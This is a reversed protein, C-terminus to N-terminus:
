CCYNRSQERKKCILDSRTLDKKKGFRTSSLVDGPLVIDRYELDFPTRDFETSTKCIPTCGLSKHGDYKVACPSLQGMLEQLWRVCLPDYGECAMMLHIQRLHLTDSEATAFSQRSM